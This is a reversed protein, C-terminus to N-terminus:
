MKEGQPLPRKMVAQVREKSLAPFPIVPAPPVDYSGIPKSYCAVDHWSGNKYGTNQDVGSLVFGLNKHLAESAPNPLTVYAYVTKVNQLSLLEMLRTYLLVGLGRGRAEPALYVSLEGNWGYAARERQRHCYAYGLPVGGEELVLYPYMEQTERIRRAFEEASPLITEFTIPTHIYNEYIALLAPADEPSALRLEM